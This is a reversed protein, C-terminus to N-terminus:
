GGFKPVDYVVVYVDRVLLDAEDVALMGEGDAAGGGGVWV